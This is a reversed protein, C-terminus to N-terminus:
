SEIDSGDADDPPSIVVDIAIIDVVITTGVSSSWFILFRLPVTVLRVNLFPLKCFENIKKMDNTKKEWFNKNTDNSADNKQKDRYKDANTDKEKDLLLTEHYLFEKWRKKREVKWVVISEEVMSVWTM